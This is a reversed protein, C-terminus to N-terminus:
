ATSSISFTLHVPCRARTPSILFACLM